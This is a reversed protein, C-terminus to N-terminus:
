KLRFSVMYKMLLCIMEHFLGKLNHKYLAFSHVSRIGKRDEGPRM